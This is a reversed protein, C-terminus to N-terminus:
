CIGSTADDDDDDDGGVGGNCHIMLMSIEARAPFPRECFAQWKSGM